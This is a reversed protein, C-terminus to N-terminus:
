HRQSAAGRAMWRLVEVPELALGPSPTTRAQGAPFPWVLAWASHAPRGLVGVAGPVAHTLVATLLGFPLPVCLRTM